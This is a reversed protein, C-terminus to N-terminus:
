LCATRTKPLWSAIRDGPRAREALHAALSGVAADFGAFDLSGARDVLAVDGAAGRLVLRDLREPRPELGNWETM